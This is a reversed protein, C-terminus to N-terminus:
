WSITIVDTPNDEYRIGLTSALSAIMRPFLLAFEHNYEIVISTFHTQSVGTTGRNWRWYEKRGHLRMISNCRDRSVIVYEDPDSRGEVIKELEM